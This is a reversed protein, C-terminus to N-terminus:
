FGIHGSRLHRKLRSSLETESLVPLFTRTKAQFPKCWLRLDVDDCLCCEGLHQLYPPPAGFAPDMKNRNSTLIPLSTLSDVEFGHTPEGQGEESVAATKVTQVREEEEEEAEGSGKSSYGFRQLKHARDAAHAADQMTPLIPAQLFTSCLGEQSCFMYAVVKRVSVDWRLQYEGISMSSCGCFYLAGNIM